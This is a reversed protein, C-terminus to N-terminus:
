AFNKVILSFGQKATKFKETTEDVVSFINNLGDAATKASDPIKDIFNKFTNNLRNICNEFLNTTETASGNGSTFAKYIAISLNAFQSAANKATDELNSLNANNLENVAKGTETLVNNIGKFQSKVNKSVSENLNGNVNLSNIKKELSNIQKNVKKPDPMEVNVSVKIDNNDM